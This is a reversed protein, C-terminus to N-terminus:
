AILILDITAFFAAAAITSWSLWDGFLNRPHMLFLLHLVLHVILFIDFGFRFSYTMEHLQVLLTVFLPIHAVFFILRSTREPLMALGPFIRWEKCRVADMEHILICATATYFITNTM